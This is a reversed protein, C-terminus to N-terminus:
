FRGIGLDRWQQSYIASLRYQTNYMTCSEDISKFIPSACAQLRQTSFWGSLWPSFASAHLTIGRPLVRDASKHSGNRKATSHTAVAGACPVRVTVFVNVHDSVHTRPLEPMGIFSHPTNFCESCRFKPNASRRNVPTPRSSVGSTRRHFSM